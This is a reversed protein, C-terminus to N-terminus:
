EPKKGTKQEFDKEMDKQKEKVVNKLVTKQAAREEVLPLLEAKMLVILEKKVVTKSDYGFLYRLGFVWWPLDKLVPVGQRITTEDNSFMGGVYGEEGNLLTLSGLAATKNILTSTGGTVVASKEISYSLDIFDLDKIKYVKPRVSLITGTPYFRQVTNGSFDKEFVSFDTGIQFKAGYGSRVTLEPRSIVEGLQDNEFLGIAAYIDVPLRKDTPQVSTSFFSNIVKDKGIIEVSLNLDKGRFLSFNIGSENMKTRDLEFFIATITVERLQAYYESSDSVAAKPPVISVGPQAISPQIEVGKEKSPVGKQATESQQKGVDEFSVIERYEPYDNYWLQNGRLILELADKWYMSEINVGIPKDKGQMPSHDILLLGDLKKSLEGLSQIAKSYPVDDKFSVMENPNVVKGQAARHVAQETQADIIQMFSCMFFFLFLWARIKM